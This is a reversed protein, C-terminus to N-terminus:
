LRYWLEATFIFCVSLFIDVKSYDQSLYYFYIKFLWKYHNLTYVVIFLYYFYPHFYFLINVHMMFNARQIRGHKTNGSVLVAISKPTISENITETFFTRGSFYVLTSLYIEVAKQSTDIM